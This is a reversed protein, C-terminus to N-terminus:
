PVGPLPAHSLGHGHFTGLGGLANNADNWEPRQTNMWIGGGPVLNSLKVLLPVLLKEALSVLLVEGKEGAILKGDNGLRAARGMLEKHLEAKFTISNRPDSVLHEFGGIEYPVCAYTFLMRGLKSSLLGPQFRECGELLRLLYIIQHDGWYGIHSGPDGPTIVDWDIGDRSIRFPNYGDATSANLFVAIMSEICAPYSQALSEWNQFIDRWNGQYGYVPRGAPDNVSISFYNWPRSPDGHRRSFTLPLYEGALRELQVDGQEAAMAHLEALTMVPPMSALWGAHRAAIGTNRSRLFAAFDDSPFRYSDLLTGGRM